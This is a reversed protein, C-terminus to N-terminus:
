TALRVVGLVVFVMGASGLIRRWPNVGRIIEDLAWWALAVLGVGSLWTRAGSDAPLFWRIGVVVLFIALPLNPFQGITIEGTQRNRFLWDIV